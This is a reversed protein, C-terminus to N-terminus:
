IVIAIAIKNNLVVRFANFESFIPVSFTLTHPSSFSFFCSFPMPIHDSISMKLTPLESLALAKAIPLPQSRYDIDHM